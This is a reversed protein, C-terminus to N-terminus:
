EAKHNKKKLCFVAYSTAVHSSNLRTSKRDLRYRQDRPDQEAYGRHALARLLRHISGKNLGSAATLERLMLGEPGAQGLIDLLVLAKDVSGVPSASAPSTAAEPSPPSVIMAHEKQEAARATLARAACM